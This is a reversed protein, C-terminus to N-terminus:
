TKSNDQECVSLCVFLRVSLRDWAFVYGGQGLYFCLDDYQNSCLALYVCFCLVMSLFCLVSDALFVYCRLDSVCSSMSLFLQLGGALAMLSVSFCQFSAINVLSPKFYYKHLLTLQQM